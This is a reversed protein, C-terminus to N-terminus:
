VTKLIEVLENLSFIRHISFHDVHQNWPKDMVVLVTDKDHILPVLNHLGDDIFVGKEVHPTKNSVHIIKNLPINLLEFLLEDKIKELNPHTATVIQYNINMDKCLQILEVSGSNLIIGHYINENSFFSDGIKKGFIDHLYYFYKIDTAKLPYLNFSKLTNSYEPNNNIINLVNIWMEFLVEDVDISIKNFKKLNNKIKNLLM